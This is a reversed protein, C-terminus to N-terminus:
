APLEGFATAIVAGQEDVAVSFAGLPTSFTSYYATM